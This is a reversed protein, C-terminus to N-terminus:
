WIAPSRRVKRLRRSQSRYLLRRTALSIATAGTPAAPVAIGPPIVPASPASAPSTGSANNGHRHVYVVHWQDLRQDFCLDAPLAIRCAPVVSVPAVAAGAIITNVTYTTVPQNSQAPSWNVTVADNSAVGFVNLPAGPAATAIPTPCNLPTFGPGPPLAPATGQCSQFWMGNALLGGDATITLVSPWSTPPIPRIWLSEMSFLLHLPQVTAPDFTGMFTIDLTTNTM